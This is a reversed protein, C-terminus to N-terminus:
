REKIEEKKKWPRNSALATRRQKGTRRRGRTETRCPSLSLSLSVFLFFSIKGLFSLKGGLFLSAFFAFLGLFTKKQEQGLFSTQQSEARMAQAKFIKKM